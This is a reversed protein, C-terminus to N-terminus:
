DGTVGDISERILDAHGCHRAYEEIMHVLIWRMNTPQGHTLRAATVDLGAVSAIAADSRTVSTRFQELLENPSDNVATDFEWDPSSDWDASAWPEPRDNGLLTSHFWADEVFAMHKVLGGITLTSRGLSTALQAADLGAAKRILVSRFYGLFAVLTDHEDATREPEAALPPPAIM